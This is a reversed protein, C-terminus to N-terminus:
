EGCCEGLGKTIPVRIPRYTRWDHRGAEINEIQQEQPVCNQCEPSGCTIHNCRGCYGLKGKIAQAFADRIIIHKGCHCCQVTKESFVEDSDVPFTWLEGDAQM